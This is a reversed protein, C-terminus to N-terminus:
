RDLRFEIVNDIEVNLMAELQLIKADIAVIEKECENIHSNRIGIYEKVEKLQWRTLHYNEQVTKYESMVILDSSKMYMLNTKAAEHESEIKKKDEEAGVLEKKFTIIKIRRNKINTRLALIDSRITEHDM